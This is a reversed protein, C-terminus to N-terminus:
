DFNGLTFTDLVTSNDTINTVTITAIFTSPSIFGKEFYVYDNPLIGVIGDSTLEAFNTPPNTSGYWCNVSQLSPESYTIQLEIPQTIGLIQVTDTIGAFTGQEEWNPTPNPTVDPGGGGGAWGTAGFISSINAKAKGNVSALLSVDKNLIQVGM